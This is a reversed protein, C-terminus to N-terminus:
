EGGLKQFKNVVNEANNYKELLSKNKIKSEAELRKKSEVFSEKDQRYPFTACYLQYDRDSIFQMISAFTVM